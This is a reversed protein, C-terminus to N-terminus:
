YPSIVLRAPLLKLFDKRNHTYLPVNLRHCVSAILCDNIAIGRSLRHHKMQDMAWWQDDHNLFSLEFGALVTEARSQGAKGSAGYMVELWTISTVDLRHPRAQAM